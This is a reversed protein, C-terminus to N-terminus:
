FGPCADNAKTQPPLFHGRVGDPSKQPRLFDPDVVDSPKKSTRAIFWLRDEPVALVFRRRQLEEKGIGAVCGQAPPIAIM